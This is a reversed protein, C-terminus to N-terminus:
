GGDFDHRELLSNDQGDNGKHMACCLIRQVGSDAFLSLKSLYSMTYTTTATACTRVNMMLDPMTMMTYNSSDTSCTHVNMMSTTKKTMQM